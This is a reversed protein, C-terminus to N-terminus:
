DQRPARGVINEPKGGRDAASFNRARAARLGHWRARAETSKGALPAGRFQMTGGRVPLLGMLCKLLTTKGVGNRGMLCACAGERIELDLDWLIHSQGYFQNIGEIRLM